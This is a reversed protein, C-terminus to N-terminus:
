LDIYQYSDTHDTPSYPRYAFMVYSYIAFNVRPSCPTRGSKPNNSKNPKTKNKHKIVANNYHLIYGSTLRIACQEYSM